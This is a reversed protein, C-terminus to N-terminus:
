ARRDGPADLPRLAAHRQLRGCPGRCSLAAGGLPRRRQCRLHRTERPAPGADGRESRRSLRRTALARRGAPPARGRHLLSAPRPHRRRDRDADQAGQPRRRDRRRAPLRRRPRPRHRETRRDQDRHRGAPHPLRGGSRRPWLSADTLSRQMLLAELEPATNAMLAEKENKWASM